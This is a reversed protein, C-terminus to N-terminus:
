SCPTRPKLGELNQKTYAAKAMEGHPFSRQVKVANVESPKRRSVAKRVRVEKKFENFNAPVASPHYPVGM